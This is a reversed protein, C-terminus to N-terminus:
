QVWGESVWCARLRSRPSDVIRGSDSIEKYLEDLKRACQKWSNSHEALEHAESIIRKIQTMGEVRIVRRSRNGSFIAYCWKRLATRNMLGSQFIYIAADRFGLDCCHGTWANLVSADCDKVEVLFEHNHYWIGLTESRLQSCASLLGPRKFDATIKVQEDKGSLMALEYISNRLEAPLALLKSTQPIRIVQATDFAHKAQM